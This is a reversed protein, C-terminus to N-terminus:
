LNLNMDFLRSEITLNTDILNVNACDLCCMWSHNSYNEFSLKALQFDVIGFKYMSSSQIENPLQDLYIIFQINSLDIEIALKTFIM